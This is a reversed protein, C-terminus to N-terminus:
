EHVTSGQLPRIPLRVIFTTGRGLESEFSIEGGHNKVIITRAIALGQGTGRGVPKTTCFPDFIRSRNEPAIGTGTDQIQIEVWDADQRTRITIRGKTGPQTAHKDAIAHAANVILNLFVQNCEGPVCLVMPLNPDFQTEVDAVYKWENRSVTLSAEVLRNIDAAQRQQGPHSIEKMSRVINAVRQVGELAQLLAQPVEQLLYDWDLNQVLKELQNTAQQLSESKRFGPDPQCILEQCAKLVPRLEEFAEQLFRVNDGIYQTPTNIEHAIGAALQGISELKQAQQLQTELLKRQTIDRFIGAFIERDGVRVRSTAMEVPFVSGDKRRGEVECPAGPEEGKPSLMQRLLAEPTRLIKPQLLGIPHGVLEERSYGFMKCAQDNVTEIRGQPDVTIIGDAATMMVAQLHRLHEQQEQLRQEREGIAAAVAETHSAKLTDLEALLHDIRTQLRAETTPTERLSSEPDVVALLDEVDQLFTEVM